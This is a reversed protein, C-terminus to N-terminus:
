WKCQPKEAHDGGHTIYQRHDRHFLIDTIHRVNSIIDGQYSPVDYSVALSISM